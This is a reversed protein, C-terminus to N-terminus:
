GDVAHVRQHRSLYTLAVEKGCEPCYEKMGSSASPKRRRFRQQAAISCLPCGRPGTVPHGNRCHTREVAHRKKHERGTVPELHKPNVCGKNECRHHLPLGNQIPGILQEYVARHARLYTKGNWFEGYGRNDHGGLWSWCEDDSGRQVRRMLDFPVYRGLPDGWRVYARYHPECWGRAYKSRSCGAVTCNM